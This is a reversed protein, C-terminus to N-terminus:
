NWLGARAFTHRPNRQNWLWRLPNHDTLLIVREAAKLYIRWKWTAAVLAWAEVQGASYNKQALSLASSFYCVPRLLGSESDMQSLVAAIGHSSADAEIYFEKEWEPFALLVPEKVLKLRLEDFARQCGETWNWVARKRTLRYLPEAM